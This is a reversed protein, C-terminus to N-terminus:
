QTDKDTDWLDLTHKFHGTKVYLTAGTAEAELEIYSNIPFRMRTGAPYSQTGSLLQGQLFLIEIGGASNAM